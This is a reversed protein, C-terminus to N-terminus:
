QQIEWIAISSRVRGNCKGSTQYGNVTLTGGSDLGARVKYTIASSTNATTYYSLYVPIAEGVGPNLRLSAALASAGSDQFLAMIEGETNSGSMHLISEIKLTNASSQPTIALTM